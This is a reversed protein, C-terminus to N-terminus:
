ILGALYKMWNSVTMATVGLESAIEVSTYGQKMMAVMKGLSRDRKNAGEKALGNVVGELRHVTLEAVLKDELRSGEEGECVELSIVGKEGEETEEVLSLSFNLPDRAKKRMSNVCVSRVVFYVVGGFNSKGEDFKGLVDYKMAREFSDHM